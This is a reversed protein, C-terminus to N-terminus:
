KQTYRWKKHRSCLFGTGCGHVDSRDPVAAKRAAKNAPHKWPGPRACSGVTLSLSPNDYIWNICTSSYRKKEPIIGRNKTITVIKVKLQDREVVLPTSGSSMGQYIRNHDSSPELM